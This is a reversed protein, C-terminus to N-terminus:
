KESYYGERAQVRLDKDKTTVAIKHFGAGPEARDPVYGLSYQNRLQEAIKAYIDDVSMKKSVEFMEGGTASSLRQLVKKGDPRPERSDRGGGPWQGGPGGMGGGHGWGGHGWGGHNGYGEDEHGSFLISYIETDAHQAADVAEELSMKSGRDVGDSLVVVAKRGKQNKMLDNSALYVADYLLTGGGEHHGYQPPEYSAASGGDGGRTSSFEPTNLDNLAKELKEKSATLDQLLEVERDFHIVFAKDRDVRLMDDLFKQSAEREQGLVNRQSMSTDVLLGLTLPVDTDAVFYSITQPRGDESIAFDDKTLNAVVKGHKDKVTAFVTVLNANVKIPPNQAATAAGKAAPQATTAQAAPTAQQTASVRQAAQEQAHGLAAPIVAAAIAALGALVARKAARRRGPTTAGEAGEFERNRKTSKSRSM